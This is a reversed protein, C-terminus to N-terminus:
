CNCLYATEQFYPTSFRLQNNNTLYNLEWDIILLKLLAKGKPDKCIDECTFNGDCSVSAILNVICQQYQCRIAMTEIDTYNMGIETALQWYTPSIDPRQNAGQKLCTYILGDTPNYVQSVGVVYSAQTSDYTPVTQLVVTYGGDGTILPLTFTHTNSSPVPINFLTSTPTVVPTSQMTYQTNTPLHTVTIKIFNSFNALASSPSSNTLYNSWDTIVLNLTLPNGCGGTQVIDAKGTSPNILSAQFNGM